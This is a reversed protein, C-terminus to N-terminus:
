SLLSAIIICIALSLIQILLPKIDKKTFDCGLILHLLNENKM